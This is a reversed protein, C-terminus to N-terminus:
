SVRFSLGTRCDPKSTRRTAIWGAGALEDPIADFTNDASGDFDYYFPSQAAVPRDIYIAPNDPNSSSLQEVLSAPETPPPPADKGWYYIVAADRHGQGDTAEVDNRGPRLPGSWWFVNDIRRGTVPQVYRGNAQEGMDQGNFRLRLKPLNSYVKIGNTPSGRRLFWEKGAIQLVPLEPRLFSQLLYFVDKKCGAYTLLGKSNIGKYKLNGFDRFTWWVFQALQDRGDRCAFQFFHEALRQQYEMPEYKDVQRKAEAEDCHTGLIGGGGIESIFRVGAALQEELPKASYWGPYMNTSVYDLDKVPKIGSDSAYSILRSADEGHIVAAYEPVAAYGVENGASWIVISPHNYNQWVMERTIYEGTKTPKAAKTGAHGNEAWVCIGLRDALDYEIEAHPYHALRVLNVGLDKLGRWDEVLDAATVATAHYETEQHKCVGRLVIKRGNLYFNGDRLRIERIGSREGLRDMVRGGVEIETVVSYCDPNEPSWLRPRAVTGALRIEERSGAAISLKGTLTLADPEEVREARVHHRVTAEVPAASANRVMARISLEAADPQIKGASIFVGSASYFTPDVHVADTKILWANRYIGGYLHFLKWVGPLCDQIDDPHNSVKVALVNEGGFRVAETADLTFATYAGRHQGLHRGNLYVDAIVSVGDFRLYIRKLADEKPLRLRTRYWSASYKELSNKHNWTHPVSVAQWGSDDFGPAEAGALDNGAIFRWGSTLLEASRPLIAVPHIRTPPPTEAAGAQSLHALFFITSIAAAAGRVQWTTSRMM